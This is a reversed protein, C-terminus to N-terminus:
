QTTFSGIQRSVPTSCVPPDNAFDPYVFNVTYRTAAALTPVAGLFSGGFVNPTATPAPLPTFPGVPIVAGSATQLSASDTAFPGQLILAGITPSVNVAGPAPSVLAANPAPIPPPLGCDTQFSGAQLTQPSACTGAANPTPCGVLTVTYRTLPALTLLETGHADTIALSAALYTLAGVGAPPSALPSPLPQPALTLPLSSVSPNPNPSLVAAFSTNIGSAAFVLGASPSITAAYAGPPPYVLYAQTAGGAVNSAPGAAPSGGGGCGVAASGIACAFAVASIARIRL